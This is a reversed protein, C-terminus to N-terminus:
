AMQGGFPVDRRSCEWTHQFAAIPDSLRDGLLDSGHITVISPIDTLMKTALIGGDSRRVHHAGPRIEKAQVEAPDGEGMRIYIQPGLEARDLSLVDVEQGIEQLGKVQQEVFNGVLSQRVTPFLNTIALIKM